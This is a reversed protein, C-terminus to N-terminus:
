VVMLQMGPTPLSTGAKFVMGYLTHGGASPTIRGFTVVYGAPINTASAAGTTAPILNILGQTGPVGASESSSDLGVFGGFQGISAAGGTPTIADFISAIVKYERVGDATISLATATTYTVGLASVSAFSGSATAGLQAAVFTRTAKETPVALDSNGGFTGDISFENVSAGSALKLAVAVTTSGGADFTLLSTDSLGFAPCNVRTSFYGSRWKFATTGIDYAGTTKSGALMPVIDGEIWDFKLEVDSARARSGANLSPWSVGSM